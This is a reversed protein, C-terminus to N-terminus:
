LRLSAEQDSSSSSESVSHSRHEPCHRSRQHMEGDLPSTSSSPLPSSPRKDGRQSPELRTLNLEPHPDYIEMGDERIHIPGDPIVTIPLHLRGRSLARSRSAARNIPSRRGEQSFFATISQQSSSSGKQQRSETRTPGATARKPSRQPEEPSRLALQAVPVVQQSRVTPTPDNPPPPLSLTVRRSEARMGKGGKVNSRARRPQVGAQGESPIRADQPARPASSGRRASHNHSRQGHTSPQSLSCATASPAQVPPSPEEEEDEGEDDALVSVMADFRQQQQQQRSQQKTPQQQRQQQPQQQMRGAQKQQKQLTLPRPELQQERGSQQTLPRPPLVAQRPQLPPTPARAGRPPTALDTTPVPETTPARRLISVPERPTTRVPTSGPPVQLGLPAPSGLQGQSRSGVQQPVPAVPEQRAQGAQGPSPGPQCNLPTFFDSIPNMLQRALEQSPTFSALSARASVHFSRGPGTINISHVRKCTHHAFRVHLEVRGERGKKYRNAILLDLPGEDDGLKLARKLTAILTEDPMDPLRAEFVTRSGGVRVLRHPDRIVSCGNASWEFSGQRIHADMSSLTLDFSHPGETNRLRRRLRKIDAKGYLTPQSLYVLAVPEVYEKGGLIYTPVVLIDDVSFVSKLREDRTWVSQAWHLVGERILKFCSQGGLAWDLYYAMGLLVPPHEQPGLREKDVGMYHLLVTGAQAGRVVQLELTMPVEENPHLLLPISYMGIGLEENLMSVPCEFELQERSPWAVMGGPSLKRTLGNSLVRANVYSEDPEPKLSPDFRGAYLHHRLVPGTNALFEDPEDGVDDHPSAPEERLLRSLGYADRYMARVEDSTAYEIDFGDWMPVQLGRVAVVAAALQRYDQLLRLRGTASLYPQVSSELQPIHGSYPQPPVGSGGYDQPPCFPGAFIPGRFFPPPFFGPAPLLM